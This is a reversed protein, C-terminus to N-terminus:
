GVALEGLPYDSVVYAASVWGQEGDPLIVQVWSADDNRAVLALVTDRPITTIISNTVGPGTRVNLWATNVIAIPQGGSGAAAGVREWGLHVRALDGHEYYELRVPLTGGPWDMEVTFTQVPHDYWRDILLQNNLWLRAGDDSTVTFRYRGPILNLDNTWRASWNDVNVASSPSGTGWNYNVSAENRVLVADGELSTNNWYSAQWNGQPVPPATPGSSVITVDPANAVPPGTREWGLKLLATGVDDFYDVAMGYSGGQLSVTAVNTTEPQENWDSIIHKDGLFVGVGDDSTVTFRYTGPEFEVFSTWRASWEDAQVGSAPSGTGWDHDINGESTSYVPVGDMDTNNWYRAFWLAPSSQAMASAASLTLTVILVLSFVLLLTFRRRNM